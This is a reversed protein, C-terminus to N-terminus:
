NQSLRKKENQLRQQKQFQKFEQVKKELSPIAKIKEQKIKEQEQKEKLVAEQRLLEKRVNHQKIKNRYDEMCDKIPPHGPNIKICFHKYDATVVFTDNSNLQTGCFFCKFTFIRKPKAAKSFM